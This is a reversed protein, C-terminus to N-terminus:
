PFPTPRFTYPFLRSPKIRSKSWKCAQLVNGFVIQILQVSASREWFRNPGNARKCFTGFFSKSWKCTQLVNGFVIQALQVSAFRELFRNPGNARKCITGLFSKSWRCAQLDNWFVIQAMQVNASREWFRNPGIARIYNTKTLRYMLLYSCPWNPPRSQRRRYIFAPEAQTQPLLSANQGTVKQSIWSLAVVPTLIVM